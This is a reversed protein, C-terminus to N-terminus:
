LLQVNSFRSLRHKQCTGSLKKLFTADLLNAITDLIVGNNRSSEQYLGRSQEHVYM